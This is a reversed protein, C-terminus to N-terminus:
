GGNVRKFYIRLQFQEPRWYDNRPVPGIVECAYRIKLDRLTRELHHFSNYGLNNALRLLNYTDFTFFHCNLDSGCDMIVGPEGRQIDVLTDMFDTLGYYGFNYLDDSRNKTPFRSLSEKFAAVKTKFRAIYTM